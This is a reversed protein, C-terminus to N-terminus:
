NSYIRKIMKEAWEEDDLFLVHKDELEEKTVDWGLEDHKTKSIIFANLDIKLGSENVIKDEIKKLDSHLELKEDDYDMHALGKPDIFTIKQEDGKITWLIFDPYFGKTKFFGAGTKSPNRLLYAKDFPLDEARNIYSTLGELFRRESEVLAVPSISIFNLKKDENKYILPKYIHINKAFFKIIEKGDYKFEDDEEYIYESTESETIFERLENIFKDISNIYYKSDNINIKFLYEKPIFNEDSEDIYQYKLNKQYWRNKEYNYTKDFISKLIQIAYDELKAIKKISDMNSLSVKDKECILAYNKNLLLDKLQKKTFYINSYKKLNKYKLLECYIRDFDMLEIIESTFKHEEDRGSHIGALEDRSDITDIRSRLDLKVTKIKQEYNTIVVEDTFDGNKNKLPVYLRTTPLTPKIKLVITEYEDIGEEKLATKFIEMYNANLGFINLTELVDLNKPVISEDLIGEIKLYQSRKLMNNYGKLRVGRGFLQIIQAGEKKGINLLGMVSVRYSNWGEIFKKSGILFNIKSNKKNIDNFLSKKLNDPNSISFNYEGSNKEVLKLFKPVEGINILGFYHDGDGFKLGIEGDANKIHSFTLTKSTSVYFLRKLIDDYLEKPTMGDTKVYERLYHFKRDFVRNGNSDLISSKGTLINEIHRIIEDSNNVFDSIFKVVELVDSNNKQGTVSSGVFVMLPNELNFPKIKRRNKDYYVKQEYLSLISAVLYEKGYDEKNKLNFISYDKGFGDEYFYKYRYDFLISTAYERFLEDDSTVEGFTASYEIILGHEGVLAERNSKWETGTSGKHGEDVFVINNNGFAEVPVTKGENSKTTKETKIKHIDIVKIPDKLDWSQLTKQTNFEECPINSEILENLHQKTLNENPTILLINDIFRLKDAKKMYHLVQLYNIHMIYTKGSGTASWFAIKNMNKDPKPIDKKGDKEGLEITFLLLKTYFERFNNFYNDLYIETFLVALYQYYKLSIPNERKENIKQLYSQINEDYIDMKQKLEPHIGIQSKLVETFHFRGHQNIGEEVDKLIRRFDDMDNMGFLSSVYRNLVLNDQLKRKSTTRKSRAM